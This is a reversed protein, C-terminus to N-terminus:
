RKGYSLSEHAFHTAFLKKWPLQEPELFRSVVKAQLSAATTSLTTLNLGGKLWM